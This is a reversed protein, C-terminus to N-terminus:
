SSTFIVKEREYSFYDIYVKPVYPNRHVSRRFRTKRACSDSSTDKGQICTAVANSNCAIDSLRPDGHGADTANGCVCIEFPFPALSTKKFRKSFMNKTEDSVSFSFFCFKFNKM